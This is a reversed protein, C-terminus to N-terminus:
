YYLFPWMSPMPRGDTFQQGSGHGPMNQFWWVLFEGGCDGYAGNDAWASPDVLSPQGGRGFSTCSSSVSQPNFYDYHSTGNPPFHVDGCVPDFPDVDHITGNQDLRLHTPSPFSLCPPSACSTAYLSDIPLGDRQLDFRAFPVFWERLAPISDKVGFEIGHGQNHLYCGPGRTYNAWGIRLSRGCWPVEPDYCGNGSCRNVAGPIPNGAATHYPQMGLVEAANVDPVDSSGVVWVENLEGRNVLTCLDLYSGPQDPDAYGLYPAYEATFLRAYDFGWGSYGPPKRPYLTSNEYPYGAPAPPRGDVGDRLDVFRLQYDIQAAATPDAYGRARSGEALGRAIQEVLASESEATGPNAYLLVLVKPKVLSVEAHHVRLWADGNTRSVPNPWESYSGDAVLVCPAAPDASAPQFGDDCLACTDGAAGLDCLCAGTAPDITGRGSCSGDGGSGGDPEDSPGLLEWLAPTAPPEWGPLSTHAQRCAYLNGAHSVQSGVAYATQPAWPAVGCPTPIEWLAPVAPPEWGPQATHSQRSRYTVGGSSALDGAAYSTGAAWPAAAPAPTCDVAAALRGVTPEGTCAAGAAVTITVIVAAVVGMGRGRFRGEIRRKMRTEEIPFHARGYVPSRRVAAATESAEIDLDSNFRRREIPM